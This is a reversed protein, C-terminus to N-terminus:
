SPVRSYMDSVAVRTAKRVNATVTRLRVLQATASGGRTARAEAYWEDNSCQEAEPAQVGLRKFIM